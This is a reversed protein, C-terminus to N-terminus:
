GLRLVNTSTIMNLPNRMINRQGDIQADFLAPKTNITQRVPWLGLKEATNKTEMIPM